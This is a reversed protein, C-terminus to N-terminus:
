AHLRARQVALAWRAREDHRQADGMRPEFMRQGHAPGHASAVLDSDQWLGAGRGALHAVGLASLEPDNCQVVPRAILDALTQLLLPNRSPGGDVHLRAVRDSADMAEVVDAIQHAISDLAARM